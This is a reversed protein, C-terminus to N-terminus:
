IDHSSQVKYGAAVTESFKRVLVLVILKELQAM